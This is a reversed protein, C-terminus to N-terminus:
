KMFLNPSKPGLFGILMLPPNLLRVESLPVSLKIAGSINRSESSVSSIFLLSSLSMNEEPSTKKARKVPPFCGNPDVSEAMTEFIRSPFATLM